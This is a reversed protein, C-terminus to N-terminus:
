LHPPDMQGSRRVSEFLMAAVEGDSLKDGGYAARRRVRYRRVDAPLNIEPYPTAHERVSRRLEPTADM